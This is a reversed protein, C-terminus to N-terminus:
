ACKRINSFNEENNEMIKRDWIKKMNRMERPFVAPYFTRLSASVINM